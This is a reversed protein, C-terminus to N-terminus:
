DAQWKEAEEIRWVFPRFRLVAKATGGTLSNKILHLTGLQAGEKRELIFMIRSTYAIKGTEKPAFISVDIKNGAIPKPVESTILVPIDFRDKIEELRGLWSDIMSRRDKSQTHPLPYREALKNISDVVLVTNGWFYQIYSHILDPTISTGSEPKIIRLFKMVEKADELLENSVKHERMDEYTIGGLNSLIRRSLERQSNEFDFYLIHKGGQAWEIAWQLAVATKGVGPAGSISVFDRISWIANDITSFGTRLGKQNISKLEEVAELFTELAFRPPEQATSFTSISGLEEKIKEMLQEPTEGDLNESANHLIAYLQRRTSAIKVQNAWYAVTEGTPVDDIGIWDTEKVSGDIRSKVTELSIPTGSKRMNLIAKFITRHKPCDFDKPQLYPVKEISTPEAIIGGVVWQEAEKNSLPKQM